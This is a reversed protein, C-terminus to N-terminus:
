QIVKVCIAKPQGRLNTGIKFSVKQGKFVTKYGTADIDSYHLFMDKQKVGDVSFEIFGIGKAFWVVTGEYTLDDSM